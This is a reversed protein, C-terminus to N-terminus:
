STDHANYYQVTKSGITTENYRYKDCQTFVDINDLVYLLSPYVIAQISCKTRSTRDHLRGINQCPETLKYRGLNRSNKPRSILILLQM